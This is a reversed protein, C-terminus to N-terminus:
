VYTRLTSIKADEDFTMVDIADIRQGPLVVRVHFTAEGGAVNLSVLEVGQERGDWLSHYADRIADIGRHVDGGPPSEFTANDAFLAAVKDASDHGAARDHGALDIYSRVVQTIKETSLEPVGSTNSVSTSTPFYHGNDM